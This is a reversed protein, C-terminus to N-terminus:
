KADAAAKDAAAKADDTAKQAAALQTNLDSIQSTADALKKDTDAKADEAAKAEAKARETAKEATQEAQQTAALTAADEWRKKILLGGVVLAAIAGVLALYLLIKGLNSM